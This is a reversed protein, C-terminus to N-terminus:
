PAAGCRKFVASKTGDRWLIRLGAGDRVLTFSEKRPKTSEEDVCSAASVKYVARGGKNEIQDFAVGECSFAPLVVSDGTITVFFDQAKRARADQAYRGDLRDKNVSAALAPVAALAALFLALRM